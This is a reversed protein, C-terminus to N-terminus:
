RVMETVTSGCLVGSGASMRTEQGFKMAYRDPRPRRATRAAPMLCAIRDPSRLSIVGAVAGAALEDEDAGPGLIYDPVAPVGVAGRGLVGAPFQFLTRVRQYLGDVLEFMQHLFFALLNLVFLAESLHEDGHGFNHELHYGQNKLTNFGENEIKWRARAARVLHVINDGSPELDTVWANRYTVKGRKVIQFQIFNVLPSDAKGTLPVESVWEYQRRVGHLDAVGGIMLFIWLRPVVASRSRPRNAAAM